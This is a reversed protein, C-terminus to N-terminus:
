TMLVFADKIYCKNESIRFKKDFTKIFHKQENTFGYHDALVDDIKDFINKSFKPFFNTNINFILQNLQILNKIIERYNRM